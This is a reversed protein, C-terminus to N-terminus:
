FDPPKGYFGPMRAEGCWGTPWHGWAHEWPHAEKLHSTGEGPGVLTIYHSTTGLPVPFTHPLGSPSGGVWGQTALSPRQLLPGKSQATFSRALNPLPHSNRAFPASHAFPYSNFHGPRHTPIHLSYPPLSPVFLGHRLSPPASLWSESLSLSFWFCREEKGKRGKRETM